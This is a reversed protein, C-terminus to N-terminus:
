IILGQFWDAHTPNICRQLVKLKRNYIRMSDDDIEKHFLGTLIQTKFGM